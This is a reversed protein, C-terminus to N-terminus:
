THTGLGGPTEVAYAVGITGRGTAYGVVPSVESFVLQRCDFANGIVGVLELGEERADAHVIVVRVPRGSVDQKMKLIIDELAHHKIRSVGSFQVVGDVINVIPKVGLAGGIRSAVKPIRGTRYVHKITEFTFWVHLRQKMSEIEGAIEALGAGNEAMEAAAMVLLTQGAAATKSDIVRCKIGPNEERLRSAALLAVNYTTSVHSSITIILIEPHHRACKVLTQFWETPSAPSTRFDAPNEDLLAYAETPSLDVGDHYTKGDCYIVIPVVSIGYREIDASPICAVSDCIIAPKSM